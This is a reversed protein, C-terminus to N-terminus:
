SQPATTGLKGYGEFNVSFTANDGDPANVDLSTILVQGYLTDSGTGATWSDSTLDASTKVAFVANIPEKAIMLDYLSKFGATSYLNESSATWSFKKVDKVSWEGNSYDKNSIEVTESNITLKHSTALAISKGDIFLMLDSGNIINSAM